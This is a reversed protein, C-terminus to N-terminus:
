NKDASREKSIQVIEFVIFCVNKKIPLLYLMLNVVQTLISAITLFIFEDLNIHEFFFLNISIDHPTPGCWNRHVRYSEVM